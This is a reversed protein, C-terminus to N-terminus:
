PKAWSWALGGFRGAGPGLRWDRRHFAPRRLHVLPILSQDQQWERLVSEPGERLVRLADTRKLPAQSALELVAQSADLGTWEHAVVAITWTDSGGSAAKLTLGEVPMVRPAGDCDVALTDRLVEALARLDARHAPYAVILESLELPGTRVYSQRMPPGYSSPLFSVAREFSADLYRAFRTKRNLWAIRRRFPRETPGRWREGPVVFVSAWGRPSRDAVARNRPSATVTVDAQDFVLAQVARDASEARVLSVGDLWPRGQPHGKHAKFRAESDVVGAPAFAGCRSGQHRIAAAPHALLRRVTKVDIDSPVRLNVTHANVARPMLLALADRVPSAELAARKLSAVVHRAEIADGNHFRAGPVLTITLADSQFDGLGQALEPTLAEGKPGHQFLVCDSVSNAWGLFEEATVSVRITGGYPIRGGAHPAGASWLFGVLLGLLSVLRM